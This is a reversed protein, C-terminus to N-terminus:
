KLLCNLMNQFYQVVRKIYDQMALTDVLDVHTQISFDGSRIGVGVLLTITNLFKIQSLFFILTDRTSHIFRFERVIIDRYRYFYIWSQLYGSLSLSKNALSTIRSLFLLM